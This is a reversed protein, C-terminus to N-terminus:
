ESGGKQQKEILGRAENLRALMDGMHPAQRALEERKQVDSMGEIHRLMNPDVVNLLNKLQQEAQENTPRTAAYEEFEEKPRWKTPNMWGAEPHDGPIPFEEMLEPHVRLGRAYLREAWPRRSKPHIPVTVGDRQGPFADLCQAIMDIQSAGEGFLEEPTM